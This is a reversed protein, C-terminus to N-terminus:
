RGVVHILWYFLKTVYLDLRELTCSDGLSESLRLVVRCVLTLLINGAVWHCFHLFLNLDLTYMAWISRQVCIQDFIVIFVSLLESQIDFHSYLTLVCAV